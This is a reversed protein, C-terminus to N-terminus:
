VKFLYISSLFLEKMENQKACWATLKSGLRLPFLGASCQIIKMPWKHEVVLQSNKQLDHHGFVLPLLYYGRVRKKSPFVLV